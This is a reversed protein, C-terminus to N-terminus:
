IEYFSFLGKDLLFSPANQTTIFLQRNWANQLISEIHDHDLESFLDDLLLITPKQSIQEIFKILIFKLGILITKNEGRSLYSSSIIDGSIVCSFDDLHPGIYTHGTIIDREKNEKLYKLMDSELNQFNVKSIYTFKLQYKEELLTEISTTHEQIFDILKKRYIYYVNAREVFLSDWLDLTSRDSTWERIQKLLSNRNKLALSYERKFKLFEPYALLLAEDLFDRRLGPWLYLINMEM